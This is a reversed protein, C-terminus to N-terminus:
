EALIDNIFPLHGATLGADVALTAGTIGSAAPSALFLVAAAVEEPTVIRGLPYLAALKAPISPDRAIRHDWAQTRVSGPCVANSRIGDQGCEVAVARSFALIGAKAAAYAPNGFHSVANVSSVFVFAGAGRRRMKPLLGHTLRMAGTLNLDAEHAIAAADMSALSEGRTWGANHVVVDPAGVAAEVAAVGDRVSAPDCLDFGVRHAVGPHAVDVSPLDAAVVIAGAESFARVLSAGIGGAAGTIM